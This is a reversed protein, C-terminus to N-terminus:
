GHRSRRAGEVRQRIRVESFTEVMITVLRGCDPCLSYLESVSSPELRECSREYQDRDKTQWETLKRSCHPCNAEYNVYDFMGM